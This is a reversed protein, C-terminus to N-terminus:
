MRLYRWYIRYIVLLNVDDTIGKEEML